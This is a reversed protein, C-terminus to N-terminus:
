FGEDSNGDARTLWWDALTAPPADKVRMLFQLNAPIQIWSRRKLLRGLSPHSASCVIADAGLARADDEARRVASLILGAQDLPAMLDSLVAVSLGSLREDGGARPRRVMTFASGVKGSVCSCRFVSEDAYRERVYAADRAQAYRTADRMQAWTADMAADAGNMGSTTVSEGAGRVGAALSAGLGAIAGGLGAVGVRQAVRASSIAWSPIRGLPVRALDLTQAVRAPRLLRLYNPVTGVLTLGAAQFLRWSAAQVTLVAVDNVYKMAERVLAFGIPGNRFEPVVMFGKFWHADVERGNKWLRMPLTGLYGVIRDGQIAIVAPAREFWEPRPTSQTPSEDGGEHWATRYFAAVMPLDDTAVRRLEIKNSAVGAM